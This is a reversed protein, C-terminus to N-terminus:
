PMRESHIRDSDPESVLNLDSLSPWPTSRVAYHRLELRFGRPGRVDVILGLAEMRSRIVADGEVVARIDAAILERTEMSMEARGFFGQISELELLPYGVENVTPVHPVNAARSHSTVALIKITESQALPQVIALSSMLLQIRNESLDRPAQTIDRYPVTVMQLDKSKLFGALLFEGAGPAAAVNYKGPNLRVLDIFDSFSGVKLSAPVAISLVIVSVAAIPLLDRNANYSLQDHMYPHVALLAVPAYLLTHEDKASVFANIAVLGDGGPRNEVIVPKGWREALRDALLRAVTDAGSGAGFPVIFRVTAIPFSHAEAPTVPQWIMFLAATVCVIFRPM